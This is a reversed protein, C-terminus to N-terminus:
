HKADCSSGKKCCNPLVAYAAQVAPMDDADYGVDAIAARIDTASLKDTNYKVKIIKTDLNLMSKKVGDLNNVTLEIRNKCMGCISSTKIKVVKNGAMASTSVLLFLLTFATTKMNNLIINKM